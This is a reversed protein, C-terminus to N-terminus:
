VTCIINRVIKMTIKKNNKPVNSLNRKKHQTVVSPLCEFWNTPSTIRQQLKYVFNSVTPQGCRDASNAHLRRAFVLICDIIIIIFSLMSYIIWETYARWGERGWESENTAQTRSKENTTRDRDTRRYTAAKTAATQREIPYLLLLIWGRTSSISRADIMHDYATRMLCSSLSITKKKKKQPVFVFDSHSLFFSAFFFGFSM